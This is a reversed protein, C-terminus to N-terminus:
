VFSGLRIAPIGEAELLNQFWNEIKNQKKKDKKPKKAMLQWKYQKNLLLEKYIGIATLVLNKKMTLISSVSPVEWSLELALLRQLRM